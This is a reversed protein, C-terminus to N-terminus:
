NRFESSTLDMFQTEGYVATGQENEQWMKAARLNRKYIRFRRLIEKKDKYNKAHRDIFGNFLNWAAFDKPKVHKGIKFVNDKTKTVAAEQNNRLHHAPRPPDVVEDTPRLCGKSTFEESGEWERVLVEYHCIQKPADDRVSCLNLQIKAEDAEKTCESRLITFKLTYKLGSVVQRQASVLKELKWHHIDNSHANLKGVAKVALEQVYENNDIEGIEHEEGLALSRESALSLLLLVTLFLGSRWLM